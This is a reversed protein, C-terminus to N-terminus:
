LSRKWDFLGYIQKTYPKKRFCDHTEIKAELANKLFYSRVKKKFIRSKGGEWKLFSFMRVYVHFKEEHIVKKIMCAVKDTWQSDNPDIKKIEEALEYCINM